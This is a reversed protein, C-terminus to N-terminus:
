RGTRAPGLVHAIAAAYGAPNNDQHLRGLAADRLRTWLVEDTQAEVAQRAFSAPDDAALMDRGDDWGLQARLLTTAVVPLGFSAAEHIKYPTGAAIRTPAVFIKHSGYLPALDTVPGCLTIRPHARFRDLSVDPGIYGAVTLRTQWTLAQDILPLIEEAFWCLSEYNPSDMRHIAGVFLMGARQGFTRPTPTLVRMHGIVAVERPVLDRLIAAEDENVAVIKECFLGDRFETQVAADYDFDRGELAAQGADRIAAIAETDLVVPPIRHPDGLSQELMTRLTSLNHTRAIWILDYYGNRAAMFAAFQELTRDHMVEVNAPMDAYVSAPEFLSGNIPYVTVAYGMSAMTRLIDNSRVFGSGIMRLPITDEIFLVRKTTTDTLRAFIQGDPDPPPLATLYGAHKETLRQQGRASDAECHPIHHVMVAPDYVTRYGAQRLRLGLDAFAHGTGAFDEDLGDLDNMPTWRTLLFVGSCFAVDRVFNVEPALPSADKGYGVISGDSYVIGGAESVLGNARMIMGGVAGISLDSNLRDLASAVANPALEVGDDLYLVAEASACRLAANCGNLYGIDTDFRFYTCGLVYREMNRTEGSSGADILILDIDGPYNARLSGLSALARTFRDRLIMIVSLHPVSAPTFELPKRAALLSLAHVRRNFLLSAQDENLPEEALLNRPRERFRNGTQFSERPAGDAPDRPMRREALGHRLFHAFGNRSEGRRVMAAADAYRSLYWAESFGPGPDFEAPTGNSLYHRLGWGGGCAAPYRSVYWAPDFLNSVPVETEPRSIRRLCHRFSGDVAAVAADEPDLGARYVMPDFLEHGTRGEIDGRWLYHDYFNVLGNRALFEETVDPNRRRYDVEDFLWHPSRDRCGGRCWADFASPFEGAEVLSVIAPYAIRHWAEDFLMNPSHGLGQGTEFYFALVAADPESALHGTDRAYTTRYWNADFMAWGIATAGPLRLVDRAPLNLLSM